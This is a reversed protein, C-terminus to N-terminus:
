EQPGIARLLRTTKTGPGARQPDYRAVCAPTISRPHCCLPRGTGFELREDIFAKPQGLLAAVVWGDEDAHAMLESGDIRDLPQHLAAIQLAAELPQLLETQDVPGDFRRDRLKRGLERLVCLLARFPPQLLDAGPVLLRRPPRFVFGDNSVKTRLTLITLHAEARAVANQFGRHRHKA